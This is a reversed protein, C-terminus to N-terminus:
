WIFYMLLPYIGKFILAPWLQIPSIKNWNLSPPIPSILVFNSCFDLHPFRLISCFLCKLLGLSSAIKICFYSALIDPFASPPLLSQFILNLLSCPLPPSFCTIGKPCLFINAKALHSLFDSCLKLWSHDLRGTKDKLFFHSQFNYM